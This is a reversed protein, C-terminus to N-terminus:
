LDYSVTLLADIWLETDADDESTIPALRPRLDFKVSVPGVPMAYALRLEISSFQADVDKQYLFFNNRLKASFSGPGLDMAYQPQIYATIAFADDEVGVQAYYFDVEAALSLGEVPLGYTAGAYFLGDIPNDEVLDDAYYILDHAVVLDLGAAAFGYEALFELAGADAEFDPLVPLAYNLELLLSGPGLGTVTYDVFPKIALDFEDDEAKDTIDYARTEVGLTLGLGQAFIPSVALTLAALLVLVAKNM